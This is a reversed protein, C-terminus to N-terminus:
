ANAPIGIKWAIAHAHMQQPGGGLGLAVELARVAHLEVVEAIAHALRRAGGPGVLCGLGCHAGYFAKDAEPLVDRNLASSARSGRRSRPRARASGAAGGMSRIMRLTRSACRGESTTSMPTLSPRMTAM